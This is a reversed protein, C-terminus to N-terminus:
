KVILKGPATYIINNASDTVKCRYQYGNRWLTAPVQLKSAKCGPLPTNIWNTSTPSKYQWLYTLNHGTAEVSFEATTGRRASTATPQKKIGLIYLYSANSFKVNNSSDMIKCRYQYGNRWLTAPVQLTMTKCSPLDSNLWTNSTPAKYQWRYTLDCGTAKVTFDATKGSKIKQTVPQSKIGLVYLYASDSYLTNGTFDTIKCRYQYANRGITAPVNLTATKSSSLPSNKWTIGNNHSYEWQYKLGSGSVEVFFVAQKGAIINQQSTQHQISPKPISNYHFKSSQLLGNYSDIQISKWQAQTGGFYVDDLAVCNWFAQRGINTVSSPIHLLKLSTCSQFSQDFLTTVGEPIIIHTLSQCNIFTGYPIQNINSPLIIEKLATCDAFISEGMSTVSDPLIMNTLSNCGFFGVNEIKTVTNPITINILKSCNLFSSDTITEVGTPITYSGSLGPPTKILISGDKNFLVGSEDNSYIPNGQKVVISTLCDCYDFVGTGIYTVSEPIIISPLKHCYSFTDEGIHSIGESLTVDTLNFCGKFAGNGIKKVTCPITIAAIKSCGCFSFEEIHTLNAPFTISNLNKCYNFAFSGIRTVTDPLSVDMLSTCWFFSYNGVETIGEEVIVGLIKNKISYWPVKDEASYNEMPGTGSIVLIGEETLEWAADNGCTGNASFDAANASLPVLFIFISLLIITTILRNRIM